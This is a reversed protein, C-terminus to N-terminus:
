RKSKPILSTLAASLVGKLFATTAPDGRLELERMLLKLSQDSGKDPFKDPLFLEYYDVKLTRALREIAQFSPVNVGREIAGLHKYDVKAAQGLQEQTMGRRERVIRLRQGFVAALAKMTALAASSLSAIM